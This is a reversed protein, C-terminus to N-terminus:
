TLLVTAHMKSMLGNIFKDHITMAPSVFEDVNVQVSGAVIYLQFINQVFLCAQGIVTYCNSDYM